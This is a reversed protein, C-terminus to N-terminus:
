DILTLVKSIPEIHQPEFTDNSTNNTEIDPLVPENIITAQIATAPLGDIKAFGHINVSFAMKDDEMAVTADWDLNYLVERVNGPLTEGATLLIDNM